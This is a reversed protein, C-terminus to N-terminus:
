QFIGREKLIGCVEISGMKTLHAMDFQIPDRRSDRTVCVDASDCM